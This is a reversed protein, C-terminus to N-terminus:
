GSIPRKSCPPAATRVLAEFVLARGEAKAAMNPALPAAFRWSSIRDVNELTPAQGLAALIAGTDSAATDRDEFGSILPKAAAVELGRARAERILATTVYTKGIGTGTSTM